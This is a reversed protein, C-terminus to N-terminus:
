RSMGMARENHCSRSAIDESNLERIVSERLREIDHRDHIAGNYSLNVVLSGGSFVSDWELAFPRRESGGARSKGLMRLPRALAQASAAFRGLHNFSIQPLRFNKLPWGEAAQQQLLGFSRGHRGFTALPSSM